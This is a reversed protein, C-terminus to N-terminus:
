NKSQDYDPENPYWRDNVPSDNGKLFEIRAPLVIFVNCGQCCRGKAVPLANHTEICKNNCIVCTIIKEM